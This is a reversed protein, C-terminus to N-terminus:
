LIGRQNQNVFYCHAEILNSNFHTQTISTAICNNWQTTTINAGDVLREVMWNKSFVIQLQLM